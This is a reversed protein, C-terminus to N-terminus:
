ECSMQYEFKFSDNTQKVCWGDNRNYDWYEFRAIEHTATKETPESLRHFWTAYKTHYRWERKKLEQGAFYQQPTGPSYFFIFFLTSLDYRGFFDPRMLKMNPFQPFGPALDANADTVHQNHADYPTDPVYGLTETLAHGFDQATLDTQAFSELSKIDFMELQQQSALAQNQSPQTQSSLSSPGSSNSSVTGAAPETKSVTRGSTLSSFSPYERELNRTVRM